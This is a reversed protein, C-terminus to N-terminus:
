KSSMGPRFRTECRGSAAAVASAIPHELSNSSTLLPVRFLAAIEPSVNLPSSDKRVGAGVAGIKKIPLPPRLLCSVGEGVDATVVGFVRGEKGITQREMRRGVGPLATSNIAAEARAQYAELGRMGGAKTGVVTRAPVTVFHGENLAEPDRTEEGERVAAATSGQAFCQEEKQRSERVRNEADFTARPGEPGASPSLRLQLASIM